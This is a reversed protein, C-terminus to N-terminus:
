ILTEKTINNARCLKQLSSINMLLRYDESDINNTVSAHGIGARLAPMEYIDTRLLEHSIITPPNIRHNTALIEQQILLNENITKLHSITKDFTDDESWPLVLNSRTIKKDAEPLQFCYVNGHLQQYKPFSKPLTTLFYILANNYKTLIVHTYDLSEQSKQEVIPQTLVTRQLTELPTNSGQLIKTLIHLGAQLYGLQLPDSSHPHIALPM